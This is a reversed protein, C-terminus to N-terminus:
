RARRSTRTPRTDGAMKVAGTSVGAMPDDEVRITTVPTAYLNTSRRFDTDSVAKLDFRITTSPYLGTSQGMDVTSLAM